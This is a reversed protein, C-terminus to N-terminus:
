FLRKLHPIIPSYWMVKAPVRKRPHEGEVDGPDDKRFKYHLAGCVPCADLNEYDGRYLIYDDPCAHIKQVELGLPCVLQKAEYTTSPLENDKPLMKKLLKLLEGFGKDSVGYTAKWQLLELTTGLKKLGDECGPYLLKRHDEIMQQFKLREKESECDEREGCLAHGLEDTPENEADDAEPEDIATDDDFAGFGAHIPIQADDYDVEENDEMM